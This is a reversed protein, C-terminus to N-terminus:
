FTTHAAVFTQGGFRMWQRLRYSNHLIGVITLFAILCPIHINANLALYDMAPVFITPSKIAM